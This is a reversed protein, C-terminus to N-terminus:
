FGIREKRLHEAMEKARGEGLLLDLYVQIPSALWVGKVSERFLMEGESEAEVVILNAGENVSRANLEKLAGESHLGPLLRCRVQSVSSLFPEYRQAAAEHTVTYVVKHSEFVQGLRNLLDETGRSSVYYRRLKPPRISSIQKAWADLLSSPDTLHREKHPGQGRMAVWGFRELKSLVQSVTATSVQAFAALEKVNLWEKHKVLIAHLVQARRGSYVSRNAQALARSPPKDIYLLIGPASIFLSGGNDYYGIQENRLFERAGISISEAVLIPIAERKGEWQLVCEKLAWLAERAMRPFVEKRLEILLTFIRGAIEVDLQADYRRNKLSGELSLTGYLPSIGPMESLYNLFQELYRPEIHSTSTKM